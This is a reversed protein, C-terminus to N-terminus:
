IFLVGRLAFGVFVGVTFLVTIIFAMQSITYRREKKKKPQEIRHKM